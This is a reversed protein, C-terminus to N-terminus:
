KRLIKIEGGVGVKIVCSPSSPTSDNRGTLAVYDVANKIEEKIESFVRPSPQGSINASTSVIPRRLARCLRRSFNERTVRIGISGDDAVLEPAVGRAGDFVITTPRDNLEMLQIAVEPVSDVYRDINDTSDTLIIMAKSDARRKIDFIRKVAESRTADCGIGWITDTPYLIVGGRKVVELAKALDEDIKGAMNDM